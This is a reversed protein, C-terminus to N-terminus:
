GKNTSYFTKWFIELFVKWFIGFDLVVPIRRKRLIRIAYPHSM